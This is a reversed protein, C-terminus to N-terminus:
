KTSMRSFITCITKGVKWVLGLKRMRLMTLPEMSKHCISHTMELENHGNRYEVLKESTAEDAYILIGNFNLGHCETIVYCGLSHINLIPATTNLSKMVFSFEFIKEKYYLYPRTLFIADLFDANQVQLGFRCESCDDGYYVKLEYINTGKRFLVATNEKLLCNM